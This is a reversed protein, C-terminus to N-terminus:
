ENELLIEEILVGFVVSRVPSVTAEACTSLTLVRALNESNFAVEMANDALMLRYFAALDVVPLHYIPSFIDTLQASVIQYILVRGDPLYVYMYPADMETIDGRVFDDIDSFKSGNLMNHGYLITNLDLFDSANNEELFISGAISHNGDLDTRLYTENTEGALVPYHIRTGPVHLWAVVDENRAFLGEWDVTLLTRANEDPENTVIHAQRIHRSANEIERYIRGADILRYATFAFIIVCILVAIRIAYEKAKGAKKSETELIEDEQSVKEDSTSAKADNEETVDRNTPQMDESDEEFDSRKVLFFKKIIFILLVGVVSVIVIRIMNGQIFTVVQGLFYNDYVMVGIVNDARVLSGDPLSNRDGQLQFGRQNGQYNEVIDIIRHTVTTDNQRLHTVIDEIELTNPDVARTVILTGVPLTPEMSRTLVTMVSFGGPLRRPAAGPEQMGFISFGIVTVILVIYFVFNAVITLVKKRTSLPQEGSKLLEIERQAEKLLQRLEEKEDVEFVIGHEEDSLPDTHARFAKEPEFVDEPEVTEVPKEAETRKFKPREVDVVSFIKKCIFGAWELGQSTTQEDTYTEGEYHLVEIQFMVPSVAKIEMKADGIEFTFEVTQDHCVLSSIEAGQLNMQELEKLVTKELDMKIFGGM